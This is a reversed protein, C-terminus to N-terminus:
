QGNSQRAPCLVNTLISAEEHLDTEPALLAQTALDETRAVQARRTHGKQPTQDQTIPSSDHLTNRSFATPYSQTANQLTTTATSSTTQALGEHNGKSESSKVHPGYFNIMQGLEGNEQPTAKHLSLIHDLLPLIRSSLVSSRYTKNSPWRFTPSKWAPTERKFSEHPDRM